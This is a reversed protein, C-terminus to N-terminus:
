LIILAKQKEVVRGNLADSKIVQAFIFSIMYLISSLDHFKEYMCVTMNSDSLAKCLMNPIRISTEIDRYM